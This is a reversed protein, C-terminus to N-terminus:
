RRNPSGRLSPVSDIASSAVGLELSLLLGSVFRENQPLSAYWALSYGEPPFSPIEQRYFSLWSVFFLPTVIYFLAIAAAGRLLWRSLLRHNM